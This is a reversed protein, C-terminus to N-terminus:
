LFILSFSMILLGSVIGIIVHHNEGYERALPLLTDFSIYIMIGAVAATMIGVAQDPLITKLLLVGILGGIPESIGSLFTYLIAQRKKGTAHFIPLAIAIGEPLNHIAIAIAVPIGLRIDQSAVLFTAIGEPLNHLTVAIATILGARKIRHKQQCKTSKSLFDSEIHDPIFYDIAIAVLIGAFFGLFAAVKAPTVGYFPTLMTAAEEILESLSVYIMVGASFGLGISLVRLDNRKVFFTIFGGLLTAMGSFLTLLLPLIYTTM